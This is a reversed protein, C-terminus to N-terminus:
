FLCDRLSARLTARNEISERSPFSSHCALLTIRRTRNWHLREGHLDQRLQRDHLRLLVVGDRALRRARVRTSTDAPDLPVLCEPVALDIIFAEPYWVSTWKSRL